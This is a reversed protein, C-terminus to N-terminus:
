SPFAIYPLFVNCRCPDIGILIVNVATAASIRTPAQVV